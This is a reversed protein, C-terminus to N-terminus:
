KELTSQLYVCLWLADARGIDKKRSLQSALSPFRRIAMTRASDKDHGILGVSAKWTRPVVLTLPIQKAACVGQILGYSEGFRFMSSVGQGPMAGVQELAIHKVGDLIASLASGNIISKGARNAMVPMDHFEFNSGYSICIAGSIGPDIGAIM